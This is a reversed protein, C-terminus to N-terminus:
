AIALGLGPAIELAAAYEIHLVRRPADTQSKSSAHILLPRMALVGGRGVLCDVPKSTRALAYVAEDTLVGRNHTGPLVRLPGNMATSDDLHIRLALVRDLASAPAHAYLIGAKSSWPGWGPLEVRHRLPLATDQHWAVLWNSTPTKNFLTARYPQAEPGLEDRAIRLLRDDRAIEAVVPSQMAHRAGARGRTLPERGLAQALADIRIADLVREFIAFGQSKLETCGRSYIRSGTLGAVSTLSDELTM